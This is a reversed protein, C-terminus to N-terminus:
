GEGRVLFLLRINIRRYTNGMDCIRLIRRVNTKNKVYGDIISSIRLISTKIIEMHLAIYEDIDGDFNFIKYMDDFLFDNSKTDNNENLIDNNQSQTIDYESQSNLELADEGAQTSTSYYGVQANCGGLLFVILSYTGINKLWKM